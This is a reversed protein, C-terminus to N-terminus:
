EFIKIILEIEKAINRNEAYIKLLEELMNRYMGKYEELISINQNIYDLFFHANKKCSEININVIDVSDKYDYIDIFNGFIVENSSRSLFLSDMPLCNSSDCSFDYINQPKNEYIFNWPILSEFSDGNNPFLYSYSSIKSVIERFKQISKERREKFEKPDKPIYIDTFGPHIILLNRTKVYYKKGEFLNSPYPILVEHKLPKYFLHKLLSGSLVTEVNEMLVRISGILQIMIEAVQEHNGKELIESVHYIEGYNETYILERRLSGGFIYLFNPVIRRLPNVKLIHFDFLVVMLPSKYVELFGKEHFFNIQAGEETKIAPRDTYRICKLHTFNSLGENDHDFFKNVIFSILFCFRENFPQELYYRVLRKANLSPLFLVYESELLRFFEQIREDKKIKTDM